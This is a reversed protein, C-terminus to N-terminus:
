NKLSNDQTHSDVIKLTDCADVDLLNDFDSKLIMLVGGIEWEGQPDEVFDFQERFEIKVGLDYHGRALPQNFFQPRALGQTDREPNYTNLWSLILMFLRKPEIEVNSLEFCCLYEAEFGDELKHSSAILEGGEAWAELDDKKVLHKILYDTLSQLCEM